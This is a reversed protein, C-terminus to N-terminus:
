GLKGVLNYDKYLLTSFLFTLVELIVPENKCKVPVAKGPQNQFQYLFM